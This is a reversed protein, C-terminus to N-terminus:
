WIDESIQCRSTQTWAQTYCLKYPWEHDDVSSMAWERFSIVTGHVSLERIFYRRSFLDIVSVSSSLHWYRRHNVLLRVLNISIAIVSVLGLAQLRKTQRVDGSLISQAMLSYLGIYWRFRLISYQSTRVYSNSRRPYSDDISTGICGYEAVPEEKM